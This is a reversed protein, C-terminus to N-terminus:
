RRISGDDEYGLRTYEKGQKKRMSIWFPDVKHTGKKRLKKHQDAVHKTCPM